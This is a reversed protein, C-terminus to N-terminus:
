SFRVHEGRALETGPVTSVKGIGGCTECKNVAVTTSTVEVTEKSGQCNPCQRAQAAIASNSFESDGQQQFSLIIDEAIADIGPRDCWEQIMARVQKWTAVDVKLTVNLYKDPVKLPDVIQVSTASNAQRRIVVKGPAEFRRQNTAQLAAMAGAKVMEIGAELRKRIRHLRDEERAAEDLQVKLWRHLSHVSVVSQAEATVLNMIHQEAQTCLEQAKLVGQPDNREEADALEQYFSEWLETAAQMEMSLRFLSQMPGAPVMLAEGQPPKKM